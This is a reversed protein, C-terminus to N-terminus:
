EFIYEQTAVLLQLTQGVRRSFEETGPELEGWREATAVLKSKHEDSLEYHGLLELCRDLLQEASIASGESAVKDIIYRIGPLNTNGVQDANFNVREVLTGSDIWEHGTHWGEVTPPNLLSQGMYKIENVVQYFDPRPTKHDGVLRIMGAVTEAPSKVKKFRADKFWQSNFMLRLMSKINYNSRYYEDELEKIADMNLPETQKWSPM